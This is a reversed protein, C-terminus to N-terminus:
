GASLVFGIVEEQRLVEFFEFVWWIDDGEAVVEDGFVVVFVAVLELVVETFM